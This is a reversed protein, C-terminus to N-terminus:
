TVREMLPKLRKTVEVVAGIAVPQLSLQRHTQRGSPSRAKGRRVNQAPVARFNVGVEHASVVSRLRRENEDLCSLNCRECRAEFGRRSHRHGEM